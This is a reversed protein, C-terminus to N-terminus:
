LRHDCDSMRRTHATTFGVPQEMSFSELVWAHLSLMFQQELLQTATFVAVGFALIHQLAPPAALPACHVAGVSQQELLQRGPTAAKVVGIQSSSHCLQIRVGQMQQM